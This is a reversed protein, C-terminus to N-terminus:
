GSLPGFMDSGTSLSTSPPAGRQRWTIQLQATSPVLWTPGRWMESPWVAPCIRRRTWAFCFICWSCKWWRFLHLCGFFCFCFFLVFLCFFCGNPCTFHQRTFSHVSELKYSCWYILVSIGVHMFWSIVLPHHPTVVREAQRQLHWM